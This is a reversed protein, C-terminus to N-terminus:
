PALGIANRHNTEWDTILTNIQALMTALEQREAASYLASVAANFTPDTGAQFLALLTQVQKGSQYVHLVLDLLNNAQKVSERRTASTDFNAM